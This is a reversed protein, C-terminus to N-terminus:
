DATNRKYEARTKDLFAPDSVVHAVIWEVIENSHYPSVRPAHYIFGKREIENAHVHRICGIDNGNVGCGAIRRRLAKVVETQRLPHTQFKDVVLATPATCDTTIRVPGISGNPTKDSQGHVVHATSGPPVVALQGIEKASEQRASMRIRDAILAPDIAGAPVSQAGRRVYVQGPHFLKEPKSKENHVDGPRAVAVPYGGGPIIWGPFDSRHKQFTERVVGPLPRDTHHLAKNSIDVPDIEWVNSLDVLVKQGTSLLGFVIM